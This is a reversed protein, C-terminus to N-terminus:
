PPLLSPDSGVELTVSDKVLAVQLGIEGVGTQLKSQSLDIHCRVYDIRPLESATLSQGKRSFTRANMRTLILLIRRM